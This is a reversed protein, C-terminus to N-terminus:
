VRGIKLIEQIELRTKLLSIEEIMDEDLIIKKNPHAMSNIYSRRKSAEEEGGFSKRAKTINKVNYKDKFGRIRREITPTSTSFECAIEDM